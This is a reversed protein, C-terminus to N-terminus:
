RSMYSCCAQRRGLAAEGASELHCFEPLIPRAISLLIMEGRPCLYRVDLMEEEAGKVEIL